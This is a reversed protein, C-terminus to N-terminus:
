SWRQLVFQAILVTAILGLLARVIRRYTQANIHERARIGVLLAIGSIVALPATAAAISLTFLGAHALVAMQTLKGLLFCMNFTQIMATRALGLELAFIAMVPL